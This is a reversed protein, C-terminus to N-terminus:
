EYIQEAENEKVGQFASLSQQKRQQLKKDSLQLEKKIITDFSNKLGLDEALQFAWGLPIEELSMDALAFDVLLYALYNKISSHSKEIAEVTEKQLLIKENNTYDPFYQKVLGMALASQFWRPKLYLQLVTKTLSSLSKQQFLDLNDLTPNGEIMETITTEATANQTHWLHIARARIFNEPHTVQETKTDAKASFIEEAQKVYSDANINELGTALKVLSTIIPEVKGTVLYAGRDCFIETYLKFLKATEFHVAESGYNNAISTIIRDAIELEGNKMSYLKVHTLEHAIVALLEEENLLKIIQGSFIIHAENGVYVISANLEDTYQAQYITVPIDLQLKEKAIKIKGYLAADATEDFKYTNKLLETKLESLQADKNQNASFFDWTKSQQKFYDAIKIHYPLATLLM